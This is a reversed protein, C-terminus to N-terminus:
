KSQSDKNQSRKVLSNAVSKLISKKKSRNNIVQSRLEAGKKAIDARTQKGSKPAVMLGIISGVAGGVISGVLFRKKLKM